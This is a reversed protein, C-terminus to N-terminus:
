ANTSLGLGISSRLTTRPRKKTLEIHTLVTLLIRFAVTSIQKTNAVEKLSRLRHSPCCIQLLTQVEQLLCLLVGCILEENVQDPHLEDAITNDCIAPAVDIMDRISAL